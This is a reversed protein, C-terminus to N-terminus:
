LRAGASFFHCEWGAERVQLRTDGRGVGVELLVRRARPGLDQPLEVLHGLPDLFLTHIYTRTQTQM